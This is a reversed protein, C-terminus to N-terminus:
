PKHHHTPETRLLQCMKINEAVIKLTGAVERSLELHEGIVRTNEEIVIRSARRSEEHETHLARLLEDRSSLHRLFLIIIIIIAVIAPSSSVLETIVKDMNM